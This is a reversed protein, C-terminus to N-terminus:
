NVKLARAAVNTLRDYKEDAKSDLIGTEKLMMLRQLEAPSVPNSGYM